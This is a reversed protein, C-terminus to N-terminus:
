EAKPTEAPADNAAEKKVAPKQKRLTELKEM